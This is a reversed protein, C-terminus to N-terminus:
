PFPLASPLSPRWASPVPWSSPVAWPANPLASGLPNPLQDLDLVGFGPIPIPKLGCGVGITRLLKAQDLHRSDAELKVRVAVSGDVWARAASGVWRGVVRGLRSEAQAGALANCPLAGRLDFSATAYAEMREVRGGGKLAFKGATVRTETFTVARRDRALEFASVFETKDGFVFGSLEVPHPPIFPQLTLEVNGRIPGEAVGKSGLGPPLILHARLGARVESETLEIALPKALATLLTPELVVDATPPNAAHEVTIRVPARGARGDGFGFEVQTRDSSWAARPDAVRVGSIVAVAAQFSAGAGLPSVAGGDLTLWPPAGAVERWAVQVRKASWPVRVTAPYTKAWATLEVALLAASGQVGLEVGNAAVTSPTWGDLQIRLEDVRATVGPVGVLRVQTDTLRVEALSVEIHRPDLELGRERGRTEVWYRVAPEFLFAAAIAIVVSALVGGLVAVVFCARLWRLRAPRAAAPTQAPNQM